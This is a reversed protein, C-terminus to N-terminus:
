PRITFGVVRWGREGDLTLMITETMKPANAFATTFRITFYKGPPEGPLQDSAERSALTRSTLSGLPARVGALAATWKEVPVAGKFATAAEDYTSGYNGADVIKLWVEAATQAADDPAQATASPGALLMVIACRAIVQLVM